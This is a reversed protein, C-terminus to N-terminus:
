KAVPKVKWGKRPNGSLTVEIGHRAWTEAAWRAKSTRVYHTTAWAANVVRQVAEASPRGM